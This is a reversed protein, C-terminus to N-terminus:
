LENAHNRTNNEDKASNYKAFNSFIVPFNRPRVIALLDLIMIQEFRCRSCLVAAFGTLAMMIDGIISLLRMLWMKNSLKGNKLSFRLEKM